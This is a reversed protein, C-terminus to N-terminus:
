VLMTVSNQEEDTMWNIEQVFIIFGRM